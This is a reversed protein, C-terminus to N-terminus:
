CVSALYIFIDKTRRSRILCVLPFIVLLVLLGTSLKLTMVYVSFVSLLAFADINGPDHEITECWRAILYLAMYMTAYDSAPSICGTLNVLAYFLIGICCMDAM